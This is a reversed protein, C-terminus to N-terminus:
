TSGFLSVLGAGDRSFDPRSRSPETDGERCPEGPLLNLSALDKLIKQASSQRQPSGCSGPGAKLAGGEDSTQRVPHPTPAQCRQGEAGRGLRVVPGHAASAQAPQPFPGTTEQSLEAKRERHSGAPQTRGSRGM